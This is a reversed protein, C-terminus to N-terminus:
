PRLCALATDSFHMAIAAVACTVLYLPLDEGGVGEQVKLNGIRPAQRMLDKTSYCNNESHLDM